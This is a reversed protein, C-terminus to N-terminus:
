RLNHSGDELGHSGGMYWGTAKLVRSLFDVPDGNNEIIANFDEYEDLDTESPHARQEVSLGNDFRPREIRLLLGRRKRIAEAENQYRVDTVLMPRDGHREVHTAFARNIWYDLGEDQRKRQGLEQLFTRFAPVGLKLNNAQVLLQHPTMLDIFESFPWGRGTDEAWLRIAQLKLDDAFATKRAMPHVAMIFGAATDKGSGAKGSIGIIKM